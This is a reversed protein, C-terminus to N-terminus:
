KSGRARPATSKPGAKRCASRRTGSRTNKSKPKIRVANRLLKPAIQGVTGVPNCMEARTTGAHRKQTQYIKTNDEDVDCHVGWNISRSRSVVLYLGSLATWTVNEPSYLLGLARWSPNLSLRGPQNRRQEKKPISIKMIIKGAPKRQTERPNLGPKSWMARKTKGCSPPLKDSKKKGRQVPPPNNDHITRYQVTTM